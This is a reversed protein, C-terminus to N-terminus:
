GMNQFQHERVACQGFNFNFNFIKVIIVPFFDFLFPFLYFIIQALQHTEAADSIASDELFKQFHSFFVASQCLCM